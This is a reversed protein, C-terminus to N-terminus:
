RTMGQLLGILHPLLQKKRSVVGQLEFVGGELKPYDIAEIVRPEGAALMVSVHQSIDTIFLCAFDLKREGVLAELAQQLEAKRAWFRELGLEEVQAVAFKWGGESFDKCDGRVVEAATKVQLVSGEAFFREAYAKLDRGAVEGLWALLERDEQTTTPSTLYLTDSIVGTALCLAIDPGPTLGRQRFQKAVLSSTSGLPENIFRIPERTVLNGGLRHHDLVELIEAQEVGNVAQGFENHDVLILKTLPPNVLDSKSFVGVLQDSEDVVPFLTVATTAALARIKEIPDGPAFRVFDKQLAHTVRKSCKILITTTATDHPSILVAVGKAKAHALINPEIEYGSTVILARVGFDIAPKQITPRNGTVLITRELPFEGLREGFAAARQAGVVLIFPIEDDLGVENQFRGGLAKAIRRLSTDVVRADTPAKSSNPLLLDVMKQLSLMGLVHGEADLVPLTRLGPGRMRDFAEGFSEDVGASIVERRAIQGATPRVDMVLRPAHVGAQELAFATRANIEGCRAAEVGPMGTRRLLDAYGIASCIADTDPNKHGIVYTPM